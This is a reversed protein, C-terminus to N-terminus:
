LNKIGGVRGVPKKFTAGTTIGLIRGTRNGLILQDEKGQGLGGRDKEVRARKGWGLFEGRWSYLSKEPNDLSRKEGKRLPRYDKRKEVLNKGWL